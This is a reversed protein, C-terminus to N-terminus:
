RHAICLAANRFTRLAQPNIESTAVAELKGFGVAGEGIKTEARLHVARQQLRAVVLWLAMALQV